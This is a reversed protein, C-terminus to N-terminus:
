FVEPNFIAMVERMFVVLALNVFLWSSMFIAAIWIAEPGLTAALKLSASRRISTAALWPALSTTKGSYKAMIPMFSVSLTATRSCSPLPGM